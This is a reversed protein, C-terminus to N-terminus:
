SGFLLRGPIGMDFVLRVGIFLVILAVLTLTYFIDQRFCTLGERQLGISNVIYIPLDNMAVALVAGFTGLWNFLLPVSIIMYIFKCLNGVAPIKPTGIAYFCGDISVCLIYPWMGLALIPLIWGAQHYRADYLMSIMVDGFSSFVAVLLVLPVLLHNRKNLIKKRFEPRTLEAFHTMLPFIVKGSLQGLVMKPLEAFMVAINYVGFLALPFMKGLLIRDAQTALFMMATSVFIWKGFSILERVSSMELCFRNRNEQELFHSWFMKIIGSVLGGAVLVWVSSYIYALLIMCVLGIFQSVLEM